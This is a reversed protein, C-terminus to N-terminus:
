FPLFGKLKTKLDEYLPRMRRASDGIYGMNDEDRKAAFIAGGVASDLLSIEDETLLVIMAEKTLKNREMWSKDVRNTAVCWYHFKEEDIQKWTLLHLIYSELDSEELSMFRDMDGVFYKAEHNFRGGGFGKANHVINFMEKVSPEGIIWGMESMPRPTIDSKPATAQLYEFGFERAVTVSLKKDKLKNCFEAAENTKNENM